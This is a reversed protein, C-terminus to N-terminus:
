DGSLGSYYEAMNTLLIESSGRENLPIGKRAEKWPEEARALESLWQSSKNGYYKLIADITEKQEESPELCDAPFDKRALYYEGEKFFWLVPIIPGSLWAEIKESFLPVDDWVLSWSQCYYLFRHLKSASLPGFKKLIYIAVDFVSLM